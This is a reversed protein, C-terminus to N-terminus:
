KFEQEDLKPNSIQSKKMQSQLHNIKSQYKVNPTPLQQIKSSLFFRLENIKDNFQTKEEIM